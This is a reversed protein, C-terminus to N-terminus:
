KVEFHKIMNKFFGVPSIYEEYYQRILKQREEFENKINNHYELLIDPLNEVDKIDVILFIKGWEVIFDYPLVCDTNLLIPIRGLSMAEYIRYSFNGGGRACFVYDGNEMNNIFEQRVVAANNKINFNSVGGWFGSRKIYNTAINKNRELVDLGSARINKVDFCGCFSVVPKKNWKRVPLMGVDASWGPISFETPRQTSKYFSTRFVYTNDRYNLVEDSDHNFFVIMKKPFTIDQFKIFDDGFPEKPFVVFEADELGGLTFINKGEEIYQDFRSSDPCFENKNYGWFPLMMHCVFNSSYTKDSYIKM